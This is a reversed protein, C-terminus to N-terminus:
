GRFWYLFSCIGSQKRLKAVAREASELDKVAVVRLGLYPMLHDISRLTALASNLEAETPIPLREEGKRVAVSAEREGPSGGSPAGSSQMQLATFTESSSRREEM